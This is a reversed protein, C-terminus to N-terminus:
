RRHKKNVYFNNLGRGPSGHPVRVPKRNVSLISRESTRVPLFNASGPGFERVEFFRFM